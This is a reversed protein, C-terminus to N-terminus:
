MYGSTNGCFALKSSPIIMWVCQTLLSIPFSDIDFCIIKLIYTDIYDVVTICTICILALSKYHKTLTLCSPNDWIYLINNRALIRTEFLRCQRVHKQGIDQLVLFLQAKYHIIYPLVNVESISHWKSFM